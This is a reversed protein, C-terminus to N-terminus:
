TAFFTSSIPRMSTFPTFYILSLQWPATNHCIKGLCTSHLWCLCGNSPFPEAFVATELRCIRLVCCHLLHSATNEVRDTRYSRSAAISSNNPSTNETRYMGLSYLLSRSRNRSLRSVATLLTPSQHSIAVLRHPLSGPLRFVEVPSSM